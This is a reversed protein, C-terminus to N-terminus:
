KQQAARCIAAFEEANLSAGGVLGGDIDRQAFLAEANDAKVSGGYLIRTTEGAQGLLQRIAAHVEQAQQPSATKGTGIAWVPEYAIIANAVTQLGVADIVTNLQEGVVELTRGMQREALTEGICLVPLLGHQVAAAFKEAVINNNEGYLARRESHGVLVYRCGVDLLMTAAVEGTFAGASHQSLNQAGLALRNSCLAAAQSLYVFPAFVAVDVTQEVGGLAQSLGSFYSEVFERSGHMKWNAAVLPTRM